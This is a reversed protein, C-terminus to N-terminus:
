APDERSTNKFFLCLSVIFLGGWSILHPIQVKRFWIPSSFAGWHQTQTKCLTQMSCGGTTQTGCVTCHQLTHCRVATDADPSSCPSTLLYILRAKGTTLRDPASLLGHPPLSSLKTSHLSQVLDPGDEHSFALSKLCVM